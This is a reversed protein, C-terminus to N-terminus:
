VITKWEEGRPMKYYETQPIWCEESEDFILEKFKNFTQILIHGNSINEAVVNVEAKFKGIQIGIPKVCLARKM